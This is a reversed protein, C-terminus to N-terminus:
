DLPDPGLDPGSQREQHLGLDLGDAVIFRSTKKKNTDGILFTLMRNLNTKRRAAIRATVKLAKGAHVCWEWAGFNLLRLLAPLARELPILL